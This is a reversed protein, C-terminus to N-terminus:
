VQVGCKTRLRPVQVLVQLVAIHSVAIGEALYSAYRGLGVLAINLKERCIKGAATYFIAISSCSCVEQV